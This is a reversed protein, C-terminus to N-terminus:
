KITLLTPWFGTNSCKCNLDVQSLQLHIKKEAAKFAKKHATFNKGAQV